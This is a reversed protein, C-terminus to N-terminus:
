RENKSRGPDKRDLLLEITKICKPPLAVDFSYRDDLRIREVKEENLDLFYAEALELWPMGTKIKGRGNDPFVNVIRIVLSDRSIHKKICSLYLTGSELSIFFGSTDLEPFSKESRGFPLLDEELTKIQLANMPDVFELADRISNGWRGAHPIVSYEFTYEGICQALPIDFGKIGKMSEEDIKDTCRLLTLIIEKEEDDPVEYEYLGGASVMLGKEGDSIDVFFQFPKVGSPEEAMEKKMVISPIPRNVVDFPQGASVAETQIGTPFIARLRHDCARNDITTKIDIRRCRKKISIRSKIKCPVTGGARKKRDDEIKAPLLMTVETQVVTEYRNQETVSIVADTGATCIINDVDPAKHLYGNGAEGRDEFTNLNKYGAGTQIDLLEFSGNKNFGIRFYENGIDEYSPILGPDCKGEKQIVRFLKYGNGAVEGTKFSIEFTRIPFRVPHGRYPDYKLVAGDTVKLISVATEDGDFELAVNDWNYERPVEIAAKTLEDRTWSLPNFVILHFNDIGDTKGKRIHQSVRLMGERSVEEAIDFSREFRCMVDRFVTDVSSSAISDHFHNQLLLEWAKTLESAPYRNNMLYSYVSIPEAWKILMQETRFNWLKVEPRTSHVDGLVPTEVSDMLEGNYHQYETVSSKVSYIYEELSSHRATYEPFLENTKKIVKTLDEQAFSHDIGNLLMLHESVAKDKRIAIIDRIRSRLGKRRFVHGDIIEEFDDANYPMATAEGYGANSYFMLISDNQTSWCFVSKSGEPMGRWAVAENIGFGKLISPLMSIHGFGDIIYSIMTARGLKKSEKIGLMLNRILSEGDCLSEIPQTYWPGVQLRDEAILEKIREANEPRQALHDLVALVQGDMLFTRFQPDKELLDLLRDMLKTLRLNFKELSYYWERDWHTNPIIHLVYGKDKM